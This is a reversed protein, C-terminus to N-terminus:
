IKMMLTEYANKVNQVCPECKFYELMMMPEKSWWCKGNNDTEELKVIQRLKKAIWSTIQKATMNYYPNSEWKLYTEFTNAYPLWRGQVTKTTMADANVIIYVENTEENFVPAANKWYGEMRSSNEWYGDSLQAFVSDVISYQFEGCLGTHIVRFNKFKSFGNFTHM